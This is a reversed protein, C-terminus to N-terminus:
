EAPRHRCFRSEGLTTNGGDVVPLRALRDGLDLRTLSLPAHLGGERDDLSHRGLLLPQECLALVLAIHEDDPQAEYQDADDQEHHDDRRHYDAVAALTFGLNGGRAIGRYGGFLRQAFLHGGALAGLILNALHLLHFRDALEGASDSMIEIIHQCDDDAAQVKGPAPQGAIGLPEGAVDVIGILAGFTGRRQGGPQEGERALLWERRDGEVDVLEDGAHGLQQLSRHALM